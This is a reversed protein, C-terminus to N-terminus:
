PLKALKFAPILVMLPLPSQLVGMCVRAMRYGENPFGLINGGMYLFGSLLIVGLYGAITWYLCKKENFIAQLTGLTLFLYLVTFLITLYWKLDMLRDYTWTALEYLDKDLCSKEYNYYLFGLQCNINVFLFERLFGLSIFMIAFVIIALIRKWNNKLHIM